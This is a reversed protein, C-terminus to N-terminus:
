SRGGGLYDRGERDPEEEVVCEDEQGDHGENKKQTVSTMRLFGPFCQFYKILLRICEDEFQEDGQVHYDCSYIPCNDNKM